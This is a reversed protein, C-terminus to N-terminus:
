LLNPLLLPFLMISTQLVRAKWPLCTMLMFETILKLAHQSLANIFMNMNKQEEEALKKAEELDRFMEQNEEEAM